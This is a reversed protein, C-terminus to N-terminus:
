PKSVAVGKAVGAALPAAPTGAGLLEVVTNTAPSVLWVDGSVDVSVGAFANTNTNGALYGNSPSIGTGSGSLESVTGSGNTVWLNGAGDFSLGYATNVGGTTYPSGNVPKGADNFESVGNPGGAWTQNLGDIALGYVQTLGVSGGTVQTGATGALDFVSLDGNANGVWVSGVYVPVAVSGTVGSSVTDTVTVTESGGTNLTVLFTGVGNTLVSDAPLVASGDSSTFHVTGAYAPQVANNVDEATVTVSFSYGARADTPGTVVFHTAPDNVQQLVSGNSGLYPVYYTGTTSGVFTAAVSDSGAGLASTTCTAQGNVIASAACGTNTSWIVGGAVATGFGPAVTATFTVSGDLSSPNTGSTVTTSTSVGEWNAVLNSVNVTGVGTAYDWGSTAGYAPELASTSPSLVGQVASSGSGTTGYCDQAAATGRCNVAMDGETVDYFVCNSAVGTGLSSNCTANGSPGYEQGALEYLRVNPNGQASGTSQNILAQVGALIPSSFSTGGAALDNLVNLDNAPTYDCPTGGQSTDTLCYLLFHNWVGNAAFLSVDPISRVGGTQVPLGPVGTQWAPQPAGVCTGNAEGRTAPTGTACNSPGGSGGGTTRYYDKGVTSNCFGTPGYAQTFTGGTQYTSLYILSSACSDAWPIEPIYSLASEYDDTSTGNADWYTTMAPGGNQSANLDGFDTGGVAVNYPTAAFGSVAIGHTAVSLDADCSAAGEDGSSVFVSLGESVAQQYTSSYSANAVAGNGSECEGYSISYIAPPNTGNILNQLAILGGFVTTSDACSALVISADPAAAGAWEADLAAEGEAGNVGSNTCTVSGTPVVQTLTGRYGSLGFASRFTTFDSANKLNTDEIVVVTQGLGTNGAAFTPAFNYITQLDQPTVAYFTGYTPDVITDKPRKKLMSHPKFNHLTVGRVVGSLAEPITENALPGFHSEGGVELKHLQTGFARKVTGANGSFEILMGSVPVSEVQFGQSQLWESVRQIDAPAPGYAAGFQAATLWKHYTPSGKRQMEEIAKELAAEVEPPRQLVLQMHELPFSDEMPGRDNAATADIPVNGPLEARRANDVAEIVLARTKVGGQYEQPGHGQAFAAPAAWVLSGLLAGAGLRCVGMVFQKLYGVRLVRSM